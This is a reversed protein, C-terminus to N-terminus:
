RGAFAREVVSLWAAASRQDGSIELQDTSRGWLAALLAAGEGTIEARVDGDGVVFSRESDSVNIRVAQASSGSWRAALPLAFEVSEAIADDLRDGALPRDDVSLAEVVDMRHLTTEIAARRFWFGAVGPGEYTYCPTSPDTRAFVEICDAMTLCFVSLAEAGTPMTTPFELDLFAEHDSCDAGARLAHPYGRGLGFTLHNIVTEVTWGPCAPVATDLDDTTLSGFWNTNDNFWALHQAPAMSRNQVLRNWSAFLALEWAGRRERSLHVVEAGVHRWPVDPTLGADLM